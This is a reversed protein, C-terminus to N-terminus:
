QGPPGVQVTADGILAEGGEELPRRVVALALPGHEPSVVATRVDGVVKGELTLSEGGQLPQASRVVALAKRAQGRTDLRNITEQGVYCGKDFNLIRERLDVEHPLQKPGIDDPFTVRGAEVRLIDLLDLGGVLAGREVLGAFREALAARPVLLDLGLRGRDVSAVWGGEHAEARGAVPSSLGAATARQPGVLVVLALDDSRDFLELDDVLIYRDFHEIFADAPTGELVLHLSQEGTRWIWMLGLLRGRDDCWGSERVEGVAMDRVKQTFMGNAFRVADPGVMEIVDCDSRDFAVAADTVGRYLAGIPGYSAAVGSPALRAGNSRHFAALPSREAAETM